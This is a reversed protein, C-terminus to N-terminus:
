KKSIYQSVDIHVVNTMFLHNNLLYIVLRRFPIKPLEFQVFAISTADWNGDKCEDLLEKLKAVADDKNDYYYEIVDWDTICYFPKAM